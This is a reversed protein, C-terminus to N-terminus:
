GVQLEVWPIDPHVSGTSKITVAYSANAQISRHPLEVIKPCLGGVYTMPSGEMMRQTGTNIASIYERVEIMEPTAGAQIDNLDLRVFFVGASENTFLTQETGDTTLTGTAEEVVTVAM